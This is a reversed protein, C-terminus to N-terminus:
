VKVTGMGAFAQRFLELERGFYTVVSGKTVGEYKPGDPKEYNTRPWLYCQPYNLLPRFWEESTSAFTICCAAREIHRVEWSLALKNIWDSNSPIDHYIHHGRKACSKRQCQADCAKWGAHLPHNMWVTEAIWQQKLGDHERTFIKLAQVTRNAAASSAPDLEIRGGLAKRAAEVIKRPTYIEVDGSTQNILTANNM